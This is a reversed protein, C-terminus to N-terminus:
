SVSNDMTRTDLSRVKENTTTFEEWIDADFNRRLSLTVNHYSNYTPDLYVQLGTKWRAHFYSHFLLEDLFCSDEKKDM